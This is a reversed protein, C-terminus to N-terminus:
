NTLEYTLEELVNGNRDYAKLQVNDGAAMGLLGYSFTEITERHMDVKIGFSDTLEVRTAGPHTTATINTLFPNITGTIEKFAKGEYTFSVLSEKKLYSGKQSKVAKTVNLTYNVGPNYTTKPKVEIKQGDTSISVTSPHIKGTSTKIFITSNSISEHDVASSLTITWPKLPNDTVRDDSFLASAHSSLTFILACSLLFGFLKKM